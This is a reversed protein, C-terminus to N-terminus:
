RKRFSFHRSHDVNGDRHEGGVTAAWWAAVGSVLSTAAAGFAFIIATHRQADTLTTATTTAPATHMSALGSILTLILAVFVTGTAWVLVGHVGDRVESEHTHLTTFPARMRGAIYGGVMSVSVQVWLLWLGIALLGGRTLERSADFPSTSALGIASGFQLLVLSIASALVTGGFIASWEIYSGNAGRVSKYADAPTGNPELIM